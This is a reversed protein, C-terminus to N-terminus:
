ATKLLTSRLKLYYDIIEQLQADREDDRIKHNPVYVKGKAKAKVANRGRGRDKEAKRCLPGHCGQAYTSRSYHKRTIYKPDELEERVDDPIVPPDVMETSM